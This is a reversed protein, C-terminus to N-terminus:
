YNLDINSKWDHYLKWLYEWDKKNIKSYSYGEYSEGIHAILAGAKLPLGNKRRTPMQMKSGDTEYEKMAADLLWTPNEGARKTFENWLERTFRNDEADLKSNRGPKESGKSYFYYGLGIVVILILVIILKKNM